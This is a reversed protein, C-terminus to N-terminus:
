PFLVPAEAGDWDENPQLWYAPSGIPKTIQTAPAVVGVLLAGAFAGRHDEAHGRREELDSGSM